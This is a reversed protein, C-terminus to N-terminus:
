DLGAAVRFLHLVAERHERFTFFPLFEEVGLGNQRLWGYFAEEARERPGAFFFEVRNCTFLTVAELGRGDAGPIPAGCHEALQERISVPASTHNLGILLLSM